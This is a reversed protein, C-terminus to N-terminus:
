SFNQFLKGNIFYTALLGNESGVKFSEIRIGKGDASKVAEELTKHASLVGEGNYGDEVIVLFIEM